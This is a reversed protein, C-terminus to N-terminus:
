TKTTGKFLEFLVSAIPSSGPTAKVEINVKGRLTAGDSIGVISQITPAGLCKVSAGTANTSSIELKSGKCSLTTSDGLNLTVAPLVQGAAGALTLSLVIGFTGLVVVLALGLLIKTRRM